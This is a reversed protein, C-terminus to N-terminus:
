RKVAPTFYLWLFGAFGAILSAFLIGTKAMLLYEPQHAYALEAIFISMTFGIGGLMAVGIIHRFSLDAPLRALGLKIALWTFGGIGVAKGVVLGLAVGATVPHALTEGVGAFEIPVGANALAFVPVVLFAVPLHMAHELRQLPTQVSHVGNELTQLISRARDNVMIDEGPRTTRDFRSMLAHVHRSFAEPDYKPRAPITLATLVGALTAHVGSKLMALWMLSGIIFYPLPKRIGFRNFAVLVAFLAAAAALADLALNETYFVAIIIVAGLDDAIAFAVLLTLLSRPAKAGLLVLAGVAFAIDTAMPIGWGQSGDGGYNIAAFIVAPVVMGGIAAVIPLAAQRLDALEGVLIERKIELGVLIFFLTMLGDNIWHHLTKELVQDGIGIAFTTHLLHLYEDALLSNAVVLAIVACAMLVLGGAATDHIFEEFPTVIRDFVRELPAEFRGGSSPPITIDDLDQAMDATPNGTSNNDRTMNDRSMDAFLRM